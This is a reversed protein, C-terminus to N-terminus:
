RMKRYTVSLSVETPQLKVKGKEIDDINGIVSGIERLGSMKKCEFRSKSKTISKPGSTTRRDHSESSFLLPLSSKATGKVGEVGFLCFLFWTHQFMQAPTRQLVGHESTTYVSCDRSMNWFLIASCQWCTHFSIQMAQNIGSYEM